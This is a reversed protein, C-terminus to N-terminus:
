AEAPIDRRSPVFVSEVPRCRIRADVIRVGKGPALVKVPNLDMEAIDPRHEVLASVRALAEKLAEVDGPDGGRYGELLRASKVEAFMEDIDLDTLPHLRFAVDGILEVFVGGLGFGIMPGFSPDESTGILVEHGGPVFEQVLVGEADDVVGTVTRYAERVAKEGVVGLVVGGIDSKHLASPSIVKLVVEGGIRQAIAVAEDETTAVDSVAPPIGFARLLEEVEEPELWDGKGNTRSCHQEMVADAAVFDIDDFQRITGTPRDRWVGYEVARALARAAPEPFLYSPIKAEGKSLQEPAGSSQMFVSLLTKKGRHKIEADQFAVAVDGSTGPAVEIHLVMVSDIEESDMLLDLCAGYHKSSASAIMDVPNAVAAEPSLEARLAAQLEDSFRPVDLGLSELADVALIGPGGANTLVAVRKGAPVPQTSLLAAVDFM